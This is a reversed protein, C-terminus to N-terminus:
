NRPRFYFDGTISSTEWPVQQESTAKLVEARTRKFVSELSLGPQAIARSLAETYPSNERGEGDLAVHGPATAYAIFTGRPAQVPALGGNGASRFARAFPNNRCADLVVINVRSRSDNMVRLFDNVDIGELDIEDEASISANVPILYNRGRVQVGHGAYYFLGTTADKRLARGFELMARKMESQTADIVLNVDFGVDTLSKAILRADKQPNPLETTNTYASNGIVLAVRREDPPLPTVKPAQNTPTSTATKKETGAKAAAGPDAAGLIADIKAIAVEAEAPSIVNAKLLAEYRAKEQRLTERRADANGSENAGATNETPPGAQAVQKELEAIREVARTHTADGEQTLGVVARLETLARDIDNNTEHIVSRNLHAIAHNPDAAIAKDFAEMALDYQQRSNFISGRNNHADALNPDLEIAKDYDEMARIPNNAKSYARGRRFLATATEAPSARRGDIISKCANITKNADLDAMPTQQCDRWAIRDDIAAILAETPKLSALLGESWEGGGALFQEMRIAFRLDSRAKDLDGSKEHALGRGLYAKALRHNGTIAKDYEDISRAFEGSQRYGDGRAIQEIAQRYAEEAETFIRSQINSDPLRPNLAIATKYDGLAFETWGLKDYVRGRHFYATSLDEPRGISTDTIESCAPIVREPRLRSFPTRQCEGWDSSGLVKAKGTKRQENSGNRLKQIVSFVGTMQSLALNAWGDGRPVNRYDTVAREFDGLKDFALGRAYLAAKLTEESTSGSAIIASCAPIVVQPDIAKFDPKAAEKLTPRCDNWGAAAPAGSAVVFAIAAMFLCNRKADM